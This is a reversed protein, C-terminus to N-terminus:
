RWPATSRWAPNVELRQVTSVSSIASRTRSFDVSLEAFSVWPATGPSMSLRGQGEPPRRTAPDTSLYETAGLFRRLRDLLFEATERDANDLIVLYEDGGQRYARGHGLVFARQGDHVVFAAHGLHAPLRRPSTM